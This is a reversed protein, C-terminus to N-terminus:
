AFSNCGQLDNRDLITDDDGVFYSAYLKETETADAFDSASDDSIVANKSYLNNGQTTIILDVTTGTTSVSSVNGMVKTSSENGLRKYLGHLNLVVKDGMNFKALSLKGKIAVDARSNNNFYLRRQACEEADTQDHLYFDVEMTNKSDTYKTFDSEYLYEIYKQDVIDTFDYHAIIDRYSDGTSKVSWSLIDEDTIEMLDQSIREVDLANFAIEIGGDVGILVVSGLISQNILDVADKMIPAEESIDLPLKLSIDYPLNVKSREFSDLNLRDGLGAEILLDKIVDSANILQDGSANAKGLVDVFLNSDNNVYGINYIYTKYSRTTESFNTRIRFSTDFIESISYDNGGQPNVIDRVKVYDAIKLGSDPLKGKMLKTIVVGSDGNSGTDIDGGAKSYCTVKEGLKKTLFTGISLEITEAVISAVEEATMDDSTLIIEKYEKQKEATITGTGVSTIDKIDSDIDASVQFTNATAERVFYEYGDQLPSPLDETSTFSVQEGEVLGHNNSTLTDTGTDVSTIAFTVVPPETEDEDSDVDEAFYFFTEVNDSYLTFYKGYLSGSTNEPITLKFLSPIGSWCVDYNDLIFFNGPLLKATTAEKEADNDLTIYTAESTESVTFRDRDLTINVYERDPYRITAKQVKAKKVTNGVSPLQPINQTFVFTSGSIRKISVDYTDNIRVYDGAKFGATDAVDIRNREYTATITTSAESLPHGAILFKRNTNYYPRVPIVTPVDNYAQDAEGGILAKTTSVITEITFSEEGFYITDGQSLQEKLNTGTLVKGDKEISATDDLTFADQDLTADYLMDVSQCKVDSFTGYLRRCVQQSVDPTVNITDTLESYKTLPISESLSDIEDKIKFSVEATGYTKDSVDGKYLLKRQSPDLSRTYSFISVSQNEFVFLDFLDEFFLDQNNLKLTGSGTLSIATQDSDLKTKFGPSSKIRNEYYVQTGTDSLDWSLNLPADSFFLRYIPIVELDTLSNDFGDETYVYLYTGDYHYEGSTINPSSAETLVTFSEQCGVVFHTPTARWVDSAEVQTWDYLRQKCNVWALTIKESVPSESFDNYTNFEKMIFGGM